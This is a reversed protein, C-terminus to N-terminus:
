RCTYSTLLAITLIKAMCTSLSSLSKKGRTRRAPCRCLTVERGFERSATESARAEDEHSVKFIRNGMHAEWEKVDYQGM